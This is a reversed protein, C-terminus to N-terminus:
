RNKSKHTITYLEADSLGFHHGIEHLVTDRINEKAEDDNKSIKLLPEKFITIKDPYAFHGLRVTKPVGNYLGLLPANHPPTDEIFIEVNDLQDLFEKPLSKITQRVTQEFEENTM